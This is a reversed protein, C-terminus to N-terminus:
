VDTKLLKENLAIVIKGLGGFSDVKGPFIYKM